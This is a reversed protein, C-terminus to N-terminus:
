WERLIPVKNMEDMFKEYVEVKIDDPLPVDIVLIRSDRRNYVSYHRGHKPLFKHRTTKREMETYSALVLQFQHSRDSLIFTWVQKELLDLSPREITFSLQIM